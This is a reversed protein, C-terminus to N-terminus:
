MLVGPNSDRKLLKNLLSKLLPTKRTLKVFKKSQFGRTADTLRRKKILLLTPHNRSFIMSRSM